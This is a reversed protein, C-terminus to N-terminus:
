APLGLPLLATNISALFLVTLISGIIATYPAMRNTRERFVVGLALATLIANYGYLGADILLHEAGLFYAASLGIINGAIAYLGLKWGAIFIGIFILVGAAIGQLFFIQGAGDLFASTWHIKGTIDLKWHALIQPVTEDTLEFTDLKYSSLLFLWTTVIYPFTLTPMGTHQLLNMMSGTFAAAIVAGFLAIGWSAPGELFLLLAMGTLMPNYGYLGKEVSERNGGGLMGTLTGIAASLFAIVGLELSTITIATLIFLGTVWNEILIVQSIGKMTVLLFPFGKGSGITGVNKM